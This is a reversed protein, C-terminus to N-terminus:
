ERMNYKFVLSKFYLFCIHRFITSMDLQVCTFTCETMRELLPEDFPGVGMAVHVQGIPFLGKLQELVAGLHSTPENYRIWPQSPRVFGM